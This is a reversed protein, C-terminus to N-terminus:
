LRCVVNAINCAAPLDTLRPNNDLDVILPAEPIAGSAAVEFLDDPIGEESLDCNSLDITQVSELGDFAGSEIQQLRTNFSLGVSRASRLNGLQGSKLVTLGLAELDVFGASSGYLLDEPLDDETILPSLQVGFYILSESPGLLLRRPIASLLPNGGFYISYIENLGYFLSDPLSELQQNGTFDFYGM